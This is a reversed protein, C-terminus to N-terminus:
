RCCTSFARRVAHWRYWGDSFGGTSFATTPWCASCGPAITVQNVPEHSASFFSAFWSESRRQSRSQAEHSSRQRRRDSQTVVPRVHQLHVWQEFRYSRNTINVGVATPDMRKILWEGNTRPIKVIGSCETCKMRELGSLSSNGFSRWPVPARSFAAQLLSPEGLKGRQEDENFKGALLTVGEQFCWSRLLLM